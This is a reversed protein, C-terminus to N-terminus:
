YFDLFLVIAVESSLNLSITCQLTINLFELHSIAAFTQM